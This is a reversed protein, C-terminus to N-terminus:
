YLSILKKAIDEPEAVVVLLLDYADTHSPFPTTNHYAILSIIGKQDKYRNTLFSQLEKM